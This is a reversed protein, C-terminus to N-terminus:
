RSPGVHIALVTSSTVSFIDKLNIWIAEPHLGLNSESFM